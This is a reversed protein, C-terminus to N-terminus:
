QDKYSCQISSNSNLTIYFSWKKKKKKKGGGADKWALYENQIYKIANHLRILEEEKSKKEDM